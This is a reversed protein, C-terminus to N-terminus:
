KWSPVKGASRIARSQVFQQLKAAVTEPAILGDFTEGGLQLSLSVGGSKGVLGGSAYGPLGLGSGRLGEVASVLGGMAFGPARLQNIAHLFGVGYKRVAAARMVFEGNSLRAVISDSTGTGPGRVSGGRAFGNGSDSSSSDGGGGFISAVAQAAAQAAKIIDAIWGAIEDIVGKVTDGLGSFFGGIAGVANKFADVVSGAAEGLSKAVDDALTKLLGMLVAVRAGFLVVTATTTGFITELGAFILSVGKVVGAVAKFGGTLTFLAVTILATGADIKGFINGLTNNYLDVFPQITNELVTFVTTLIDVVTTAAGALKVFADRIGLLNKNAVASDDGAIISVIDKVIPGVQGALTEAFDLIADKNKVIIDTLAKFAETFPPALDLGIQVGVGKAARVLANLSDNFDQAIAFSAKDFVLGLDVAQKELAEIAARGDDLAPIMQAGARGFIKLALASKNVGDPMAAFKAAIENIVDTASRLTGDSNKVSIGLAKFAVLGEGIGRSADLINKNLIKMAAGFQEASVDGQEFVFQLKGYEEISLGASQAAKGTSDVLETATKVFALVGAGAATIAGTLLAVNRGFTAVSEGVKDFGEGVKAAGSSIEKFDSRVQTLFRNLGTGSSALKDASEKLKRFAAEGDAGISKLEAEIEKGGDLAIRQILTKAM